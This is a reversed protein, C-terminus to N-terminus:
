PPVGSAGKPGHFREGSWPRCGGDDKPDRQHSALMENGQYRKQNRCGMTGYRSQASKRIAGFCADIRWRRGNEGKSEFSSRWQVNSSGEAFNRGYRGHWRPSEQEDM